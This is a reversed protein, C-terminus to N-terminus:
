WGLLGATGDWTLKVGAVVLLVYSVNLFTRQDIRKLIYRGLYIGVPALPALVLSTWLNETSFQGLWAYPVLKVANIVTFLIVTTGAFLVRDIQQPLLYIQVPPGGAHAIFSTYGAVAGWFSGKRVSVPAPEKPAARLAAGFWHFLAFLLAELGILLKIVDAPVYRFTLAGLVIGFVAAPMLIELNRKDFVGWYAHVAFADMLCLIPLTIAAAQPVPVALAILPVGLTGMGGFGAKSIGIILVAPVALLYFLTDTIM